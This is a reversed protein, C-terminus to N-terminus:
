HLWGKRLTLNSYWVLFLSVILSMLSGVWIDTASTALLTHINTVVVGLLSVIFLYFAVAKKLMLLVDALVGGFVAIAFAATAWSPRTAILSQAAVPYETLMDPDMQMIYNLCGMGNWILAVICITWFSWHIKIETM